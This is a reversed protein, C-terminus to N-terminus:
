PRPALNAATEVSQSDGGEAPLVGLLERFRAELKRKLSTAPGRMAEEAELWKSPNEPDPNTFDHYASLAIQLFSDMDACIDEPLLIQNELFFTQCDTFAEVSDKQRREHFAQLQNPNAPLPQRWASVWVGMKWNTQHILRYLTKAAEAQDAYLRSFKIQNEDLVKKYGAKAGELKGDLEAKLRIEKENYEHEISKRIRTSIWERLLFVLISPLAVSLGASSLIVQWDSM